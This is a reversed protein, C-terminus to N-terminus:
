TRDRPGFWSRWRAFWGRGVAKRARVGGVAPRPSDKGAQSDNRLPAVALLTPPAHQALALRERLLENDRQLAGLALILRNAVLVRAQESARSQALDRELRNMRRRAGRELVDAIALERERVALAEIYRRERRGPGTIRVALVHEPEPRALPAIEIAREGTEADIAGRDAPARASTDSAATSSPSRPVAALPLSDSPM